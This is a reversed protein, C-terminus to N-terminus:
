LRDTGSPHAAAPRRTALDTHVVREREVQQGDGAPLTVDPRHPGDSCGTRDWARVRVIERDLMDHWFIGDTARATPERYTGAWATPLASLGELQVPRRYWCTPTAETLGCRVRLGDVFECLVAWDRATEDADLSSWDVPHLNLGGHDGLRELLYGVQGRLLTVEDALSLSMPLGHPPQPHPPRPDPPRDFIHDTLRAWARCELRTVGEPRWGDPTLRRQLIEVHLRTAAMGDRRHTRESDGVIRGATHIPIQTM